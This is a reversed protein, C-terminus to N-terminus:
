IRIGSDSQYGRTRQQVNVAPHGFVGQPTDPDIKLLEDLGLM